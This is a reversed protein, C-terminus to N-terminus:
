HHPASTDYKYQYNFGVIFRHGGHYPNVFAAYDQPGLSALTDTLAGREAIINNRGDNWVRNGCLPAGVRGAAQKLAGYADLKPIGLETRAGAKILSIIDSATLTPDFDKLLVAVGSVLPAAFSTGDLGGTGSHVIQNVYTAQRVDSAPAYIEVKDGGNSGSWVKGDTGLGGVVLIQNPFTDKAAAWGSTRFDKGFSNGASIVFLPHKGRADLRRIATILAQRMENAEIVEWPQPVYDKSSCNLGLSLNIVAADATGSGAEIIQDMTNTIRLGNEVPVDGSKQADRKQDRLILRARWAMGTMGTTDNGVSALISAVRTGHDLSSSDSMLSSHATDVNAAINGIPWVHLDVVAVGVAASGTSCGWAMPANVYELAWNPRTSSTKSPDLLWSNWGPGDNPRRYSEMPVAYMRWLGVFSVGSQRSLVNVASQLAGTTGGVIRVYYDGDLDGTLRRGGVVEGGVSDIAAQRQSQSASPTFTVIVIDKRYASDLPPGSVSGLSDFLQRPVSDPPYPPVPTRATLEFDFTTTMGALGISLADVNGRFAAWGSGAKMVVAGYVKHIGLNPFLALLQAWTCPSAQVCSNTVAVGNRKVTSKTGWWRGARTDWRQWTSQMVGGPATQYPEYVLRGQYSSDADTLDYDVNLQLAIALNNGADASQRYTSYSLETIQDLRAGQYGARALAIGDSSAQTALEASGTGSPMGTPGTVLACLTSTTCPTSTQDNMFSWGGMNGPSVTVVPGGSFDLQRRAPGFLSHGPNLFDQCAYISALLLCSVVTM